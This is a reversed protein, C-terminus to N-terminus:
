QNNFLTLKNFRHRDSQKGGNIVERTYKKGMNYLRLTFYKDAICKILKTTHEDEVVVENMGKEHELFLDITTDLSFYHCVTIIMRKNLNSANSVHIQQGDIKSIATSKFVRECYEIIRFVSTSPIQLGGRNIFTTFSAATGANHYLNASYDHGNAPVETPQALLCKKCETCQLKKNLKSVIYGAIYFLVNSLFEGHGDENLHACISDIDTDASSISVENHQPQDEDPIHKKSHFIPIINNCGTFDVCNANKSATIANRMLMNRIAYKLQLVNPNNNWGGKSRICSFLLELHDQSFKYTLLYKFPNNPLSFMQSSMAITSKICATFGIVFTKRQSNCLLQSTTSATQLSLLYKASSLFIEEWTDKTHPRLPAKFGQGHPNRSNLMDFLRDIVRIFKVTGLSGEFNPFKPSKELFEIADAVSSSITQAALQVNMKHKQFRLHNSSLKNKLNLGANQQLNQLDKIDKWRVSQGKCDVFSGYDALANRALKLMHCPDCIAYVNEGTTPHSFSTKMDNYTGSFDCGLIEFTNLNVATGDATVSWVKLDAKAALELAKLVLNAQDKATIKNTLFYGIPCKWHARTGVLLFVLAESALKTPTSNPIANGFDVFGSYKDKEPNWLMQKRIAMADVVLCCDKNNPSNSIQSSLSTFADEIFGPECKFSSSWKRVLSPNPLPIISRVYKYARPSYYHLTLAFEKIEDTYRRASPAAKMNDRFNYLFHLQTNEFSSHMAEAEKANIIKEQKLKTIVDDMTKAKQKARRLQQQLNKVKQKLKKQMEHREDMTDVRRIKAPPPLDPDLESPFVVSDTPPFSTPTSNADNTNEKDNISNTAPTVLDIPKSPRAYKKIRCTGHKSPPIIYDTNHFHDSCIRSATTAKWPATPSNNQNVFREWHEITLENKLPFRYYICTHM